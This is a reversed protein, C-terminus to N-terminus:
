QGPAPAQGPAMIGVEGHLPPNLTRSESFQGIMNQKNTNEIIEIAGNFRGLLDPSPQMRYARLIEIALGTTLALLYAEPYYTEVELAEDGVEFVHLPNWQSTYLVQPNAPIPAFNFTGVPRNDDYFIALPGDPDQISRAQNAQWQPRTLIDLDWRRANGVIVHATQIQVPRVYPSDAATTNFDAAGPGIQYSGQGGKLPYQAEPVYFQRERKQSWVRIMDAQRRQVYATTPGSPTATPNLRGAEVLADSYWQLVTPM